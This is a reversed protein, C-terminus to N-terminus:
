VKIDLLSKMMESYVQIVKANAVFDIKATIQQVAENALDVNPAAVLGNKDAFPATPDYQSVYGPSATSVNALTGGGAVDVQNVRQAAYVPPFSAANPADPLPGTDSANAVNSASVELRRSAAALGSAAISLISM